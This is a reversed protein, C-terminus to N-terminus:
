LIRVNGRFKITATAVNSRFVRCLADEGDLRVDVAKAHQEQLNHAADPYATGVADHVKGAKYDIYTDSNFNQSKFSGIAIWNRVTLKRKLITWTLIFGM